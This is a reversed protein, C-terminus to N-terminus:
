KVHRNFAIGDEVFTLLKIDDRTPTANSNDITATAGNGKMLLPSLAHTLRAGELLLHCKRM